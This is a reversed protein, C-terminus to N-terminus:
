LKLFSKIADIIDTKNSNNNSIIENKSQNIESVVETKSSNTTDNISTKAEDIKNNIEEKTEDMKNVIDKRWLRTQELFSILKDNQKYVTQYYDNYKQMDIEINKIYIFFLRINIM